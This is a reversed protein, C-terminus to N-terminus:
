EVKVVGEECFIEELHEVFKKSNEKANYESVWINRSAQRMKLIDKTEMKQLKLITEALMDPEVDVPLLFGNGKIMSAIGGTETGIIPIGFSMAEQISVPCGGESESATIFWDVMSEAYYQKIIDNKVYGKFEYNINKKSGLINAALNEVRDADEGSGFHVWKIKIYDIKSLARVILDVRKLHILNSCSVITMEEKKDYDIEVPFENEIGLKYIECLSPDLQDWTKLYYARAEEAVFVMRDIRKHLLTRFPQRGFFNREQYLDYGHLRTIIKMKPYKNKYLILAMCNSHCWYSYIYNIQEKNIIGQKKLYIYLKDASAFFGISDRIRSAVKVKSALIEEVENICEPILFFKVFYYIKECLNFIIPIHFIKIENDVESTLENSNSTSVIILEFREKLYPIEPNIFSKEGIGYPYDNMLLILRKKSM